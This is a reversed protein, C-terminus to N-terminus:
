RSEGQDLYLQIRLADRPAIRNIRELQRNVFALEDATPSLAQLDELGRPRGAAIKMLIQDPRGLARVTLQGFTGVQVLRSSYDSPLLDRYATVGDNIWTPSLELTDAVATIDRSLTSLKPWSAIADADANARDVVGLLVLASDGAIAIEAPTQL